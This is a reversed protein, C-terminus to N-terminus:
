SSRHAAPKSADRLVPPLVDSQQSPEVPPSVVASPAPAAAAASVKEDMGFRKMILRRTEVGSRPAFLIGVGTGVAVGAGFLGYSILPSRRRALGLWGLANEARFGRITALLESAAKVGDLWTARAGRTAAVQASGVRHKATDITENLTAMADMGKRLGDNTKM